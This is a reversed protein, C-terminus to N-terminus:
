KNRKEKFCEPCCHFWEERDKYVKWGNKKVEYIGENWDDTTIIIENDGCIDCVMYFEDLHRIFTIM